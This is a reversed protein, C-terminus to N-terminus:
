EGQFHVAVDVGLGEVERIDVDGAFAFVVNEEDGRFVVAHVGEVGVTRRCSREPLHVKGIGAVADSRDGLPVGLQKKMTGCTPMVEVGTISRM